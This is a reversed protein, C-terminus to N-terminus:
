SRWSRAGGGGRGTSRDGRRGHISGLAADRVRRLHGLHRYISARSVGLTTAIEALSHQQTDYMQHALAIKTPTMSPPRGANAPRTTQDLHDQDPGVYVDFAGLATNVSVTTTARQPQPDTVVQLWGTQGAQMLVPLRANLPLAVVPTQPHLSFRRGIVSVASSPLSIMPTATPTAAPMVQLLTSIGAVSQMQTIPSAATPTPTAAVAARGATAGPWLLLLVAVMVAFSTSVRGLWKSLKPM